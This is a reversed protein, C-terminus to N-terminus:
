YNGSYYSSLSLFGIVLGIIMRFIKTWNTKEYPAFLLIFFPLVQGVYRSSFQTTVKITSFVILMAILGTLLYIKDLRRTYLRIV